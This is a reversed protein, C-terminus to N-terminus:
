NVISIMCNFNVSVQILPHIHPNYPINFPAVISRNNVQTNFLNYKPNNPPSPALMLVARFPSTFQQSAMGQDTEKKIFQWKKNMNYVEEEEVYIIIYKGSSLLGKEEMIRTFDVLASADSLLM